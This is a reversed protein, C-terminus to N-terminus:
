EPKENKHVEHHDKPFIPDFMAIRTQSSNFVLFYGISMAFVVGAIAWVYEPSTKNFDLIIVKRAIAMLATAMVIQVHIVDERLYICINVFIEIAILVAMFAGFTALIDSITLLFRPPSILEQYLVWCVDVVGWLIVATMILALVRVAFRIIARLKLILPEDNHDHHDM